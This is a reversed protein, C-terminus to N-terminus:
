PCIIIVDVNLKKKLKEIDKKNLYDSDDKNLGHKTVDYVEWGIVHYFGPEDSVVLAHDGYGFGDKNDIEKLNSFFWFGDAETEYIVGDEGLPNIYNDDQYIRFGKPIKRMISKKLDKKQTIM